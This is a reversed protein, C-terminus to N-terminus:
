FKSSIKFPSPPIRVRSGPFGPYRNELGDGEVLEAVEGDQQATAFKAVASNKSLEKGKFINHLLYIELM